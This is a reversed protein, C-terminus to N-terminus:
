LRPYWSVHTFRRAYYIFKKVKGPQKMVILKLKQLEMQKFAHNLMEFYM